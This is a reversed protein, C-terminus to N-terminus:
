LAPNNVPCISCGSPSPAYPPSGIFTPPPPPPSHVPPPGPNLYTGPYPHIVLVPPPGFPHWGLAECLTAFPGPGNPDDIPTTLLGVGGALAGAGGTGSAPNNPATDVPDNVPHNGPSLLPPNFPKTGPPVAPGGPGCGNMDMFNLTNNGVMAYLNIGGREHLPDRNVWRQLSPAYWRYGYYSLGGAGFWLKSSFGFDSYGNFGDSVINGYPDYRRVGYPGTSRQLGTINGNGDAHLFYHYAAVGNVFTKALELLGGIGGAGDFTGSLDTGWTCAEIPNNNQDREEVVRMSTGDYVYEVADAEQWYWDGFGTATYDIRERLRGLGDYIFQSELDSGSSPLDGCNFYNSVANYQWWTLRNEDDDYCSAVYDGATRSVQSRQNNM